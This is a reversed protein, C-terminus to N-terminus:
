EYRLAVMPHVKAARRAPLWCALLTVLLLLLSVGAITLPDGPKVGPFDPVFEVTQGAVPSRLPVIKISWM